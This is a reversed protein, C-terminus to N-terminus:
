KGKLEAWKKPKWNRALEQAEAIQKATMKKEIKNRFEHMLFGITKKERLPDWQHQRAALNAWKHAMVFNQAVGQGEYYMAALNNQSLDHDQMAAFRYWKLAEKYNQAVGQGLQYMVALDFQAEVDGQEARKILNNDIGKSYAKGHEALLALLSISAIIIIIHKMSM